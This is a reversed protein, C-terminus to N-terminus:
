ESIYEGISDKKIIGGLSNVIKIDMYTHNKGLDASVDSLKKYFKSMATQEDAVKERNGYETYTGEEEDKIQEITDIYFKM